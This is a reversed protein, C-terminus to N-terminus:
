YRRLSLHVYPVSTTANCRSPNAIRCYKKPYSCFTIKADRFSRRGWSHPISRGFYVFYESIEMGENSDPDRERQM